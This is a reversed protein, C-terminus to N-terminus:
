PFSLVLFFTLSTLTMKAIKMGITKHTMNKGNEDRPGIVNVKTSKARILGEESAGVPRSATKTSELPAGELM